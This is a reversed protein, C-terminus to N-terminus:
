LQRSRQTIMKRVSNIIAEKQAELCDCHGDISEIYYMCKSAYDSKISFKCFRQESWSAGASCKSLIGTICYNIKQVNQNGSTSIEVRTLKDDSRCM